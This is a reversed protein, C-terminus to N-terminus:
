IKLIFISAIDEIPVGAQLLFLTKPIVEMNGQLYSIWADKGVDVAGNMLQSLIDAINNIKEADTKNSLSIVEIEKLTKSDIEKTKNYNLRLKIPVKVPSLVESDSYYPNEVEFSYNMKAGAMTLMNAFTNHLTILGLINKGTINDQQKKLNYAYETMKTPSVGGGPTSEGTKISKTHDVENDAKQIDKKLTNSLPKTLHTDNPQMLSFAMEPMEM